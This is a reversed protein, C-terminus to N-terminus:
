SGNYFVRTESDNFWFVLSGKMECFEWPWHTHSHQSEPVFYVRRASLLCVGAPRSQTKSIDVGFRCQGLARQSGNEYELLIGM